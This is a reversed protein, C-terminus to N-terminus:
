SEFKKPILTLFTHNVSELLIGINLWLLVDKTVDNDVINWFHQYFLLSMRDPGLAKLPAMDKVATM